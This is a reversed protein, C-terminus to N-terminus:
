QDYKCRLDEIAAAYARLRAFMCHCVLVSCLMHNTNCRYQLSGQM